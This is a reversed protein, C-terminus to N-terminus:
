VAISGLLDFNLLSATTTIVNRLSLFRDTAEV